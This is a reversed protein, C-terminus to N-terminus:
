AARKICSLGAPFALTNKNKEWLAARVATPLDRFWVWVDSRPSRAFYNRGVCRLEEPLELDIGYPDFTQGYESIVEATQPISKV